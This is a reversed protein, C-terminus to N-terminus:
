FIEKKIKKSEKIAVMNNIVFQWKEKLNKEKSLKKKQVNSLITKLYTFLFFFHIAKLLFM